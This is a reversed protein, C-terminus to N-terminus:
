SSDKIWLVGTGDILMGTTLTAGSDNYAFINLQMGIPILWNLKTHIPRGDNLTEETSAGPFQGIIRVLRNAQEQAVKNGVNISAQAEICEKIETVSYDSHAYGVTIPGEAGTANKKSWVYTASKVRYAGDAAGTSGATVVVGSVAALM